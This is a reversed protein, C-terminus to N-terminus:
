ACRDKVWRPAPVRACRARLPGAASHRRDLWTGSKMASRPSGESLNGPAASTPRFACRLQQPPVTRKIADKIGTKKLGLSVREAEIPQNRRHIRFRRASVAKFETMGTPVRCVNKSNQGISVYREANGVVMIRWRWPFAGSVEDIQTAMARAASVFTSVRSSGKRGPALRDLRPVPVKAVNIDVEVIVLLAGAWPRARAGGGGSASTQRSIELSPRPALPSGLKGAGAKGTGISKLRLPPGITHRGLRRQRWTRRM